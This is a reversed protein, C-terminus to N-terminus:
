TPAVIATRLGIPSTDIGGKVGRSTYFSRKTCSSTTPSRPISASTQKYPSTSRGASVFKGGSVNYGLVELTPIM